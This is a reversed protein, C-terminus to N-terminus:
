EEPSFELSASNICYRLATPPPGDEFVHGLHADCRACMVETRLMGFSTDSEEAIPAGPLASWFSPWGSGSDYKSDSSFLPAKCCVCLYTGRESHNWFLGTFPAETGKKRAVSFQEATLIRRWEAESREVRDHAAEAAVSFLFLLLLPLVVVIKM